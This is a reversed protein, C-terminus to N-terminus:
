EFKEGTAAILRKWRAVESAIHDALEAPTGGRAVVGNDSLVKQVQPDQLAKNAAANLREIIPQPTGVPAALGIWGTYQVNPFGVEATTPVNHFRPWRAQGTTALIRLDGRDVLEKGVNTIMFQVDGSMLATLAPLEGRYSIQVAASQPLGAQSLFISATVHHGTGIGATGYNLKGPNARILNALEAVSNAPVKANVFFGVPTATLLIIPVLDKLPDYGLDSAFAPLLGHTNATTTAVTYGDPPSQIAAQTGLKGSAGVRNEIYVSQGLEAALGNALLRPVLDITSGAAVPVIIRIARTPYNQAAATRVLEATLVIGMIAAALAHIGATQRSRRSRGHLREASLVSLNWRRM